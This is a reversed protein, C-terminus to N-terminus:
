GLLLGLVGGAAILWASNLRFRAVAVLSAVAVGTTVGDILAARGLQWSVVAMLAVSGVTVGNLVAGAIPSRRLLPVLPGSLAVFVFAPLFIGITAAAAGSPGGLVYGIFTATTLLPGPTMQGIAVADLLQPETLWGLREVLDARLFALLVYGSGFLVAGAKMFVLFLPWLGFPVAGATAGAASLAATAGAATSVVVLPPAARAGTWGLRAGGACAGAAVLVAVEHIGGAVAGAAAVGLLALFRTKIATRGLHWLSQAVVAMVVPKIGYLLAGAAPLAGYRVYAWAVASVALSAPVIFCIGAVLLGPWGARARGIHIALETSNPGPILHAAGLYDLFQEPTLWARRRVVEEEMM